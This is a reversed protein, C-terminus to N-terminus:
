SLNINSYLTPSSLYNTTNNQQIYKKATELNPKEHFKVVDFNKAEIYGYGTEPNTPNIGFTVLYGQKAFEKAKDVAKKYKEEDKILHDSPTVFVIDEEDVEFCALAIAPATNKGISELMFKTNQANFKINEIEELQDLATFYQEDNSIVICRDSIKQNRKLTLQFLSEGNFLKLFQKPM